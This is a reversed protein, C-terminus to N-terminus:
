FNVTGGLSSLIDTLIDGITQNGDYNKGSLTMGSLIVSKMDGFTIKQSDYKHNDIEKSVILLDNDSISGISSLDSIKVKGYQRQNFISDEM